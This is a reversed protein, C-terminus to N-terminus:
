ILVLVGCDLQRIIARLLLPIRGDLGGILHILATLLM